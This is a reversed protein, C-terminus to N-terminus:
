LSLPKVACSVRRWYALLGHRHRRFDVLTQWFVDGAFDCSCLRSRTVLIELLRMM